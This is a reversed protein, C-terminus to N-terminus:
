SQEAADQLRDDSRRSVCAGSVGFHLQSGKKKLNGVLILKQLMPLHLGHFIESLLNLYRDAVILPFTMSELSSHAVLGNIACCKAVM